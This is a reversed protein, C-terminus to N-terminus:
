FEKHKQGGKCNRVYKFIDNEGIILIHSSLFCGYSRAIVKNSMQDLINYGRM